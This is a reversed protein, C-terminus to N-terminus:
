CSLTSSRMANLRRKPSSSQAGTCLGAAAKDLAMRFEIHNRVHNFVSHGDAAEARSFRHPVGVHRIKLIRGLGAHQVRQLNRRSSAVRVEAVHISRIVGQRIGQFLPSRTETKLM